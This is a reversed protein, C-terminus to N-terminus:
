KNDYKKRYQLVESISLTNHFIFREINTAIKNEIYLNHQVNDMKSVNLICAAKQFSSVSRDESTYFIDNLLQLM